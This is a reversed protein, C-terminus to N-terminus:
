CKARLIMPRTAPPAMIFQSPMMSAFLRQYVRQKAALPEDDREPKRDPRLIRRNQRLLKLRLELDFVQEIEGIPVDIELKHNVIRWTRRKTGMRNRSTSGTYTM